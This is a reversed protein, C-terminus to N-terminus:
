SHLARRASVFTKSMRADWRCQMHPCAHSVEKGEGKGDDFSQQTVFSGWDEEKGEGGEEEGEKSMSEHAAAYTRQVDMEIVSVWGLKPSAETTASTSAAANVAKQLKKYKRTSERVLEWYNGRRTPATQALWYLKRQNPPVGNNEIISARTFTVPPAPPEPPDDSDSDSSASSLSFDSDISDASTTPASSPLEGESTFSPEAVKARGAPSALWECGAVLGAASTASIQLGRLPTALGLVASVPMSQGDIPLTPNYVPAAITFSPFPSPSSPTLLRLHLPVRACSGPQGHESAHVAIDRQHVEVPVARLQMGLGMSTLCLRVDEDHPLLPASLTMVVGPLHDALLEHGCVVLSRLPSSSGDDVSLHGSKLQELSKETERPEPQAPEEVEGPGEFEGFDDSSSADDVSLHGSKLQELSKETERPEPQVPEEVEGPGEFEGFDNSEDSSSADDVSLHGSKLQELSKETERSEPQAPEEVEGSGEFEGFGDGDSSSADDVSLHGSKLQELNKETLELQAVNEAVQTEPQAGGESKFHGFGADEESGEDSVPFPGSERQALQKEAEEFGEGDEECDEDSSNFDDISLHGSSKFPECARAEAALVPEEERRALNEKEVVLEEAKEGGENNNNSSSNDSSSSSKDVSIGGSGQLPERVAQPSSRSSGNSSSREDVEERSRAVGGRSESSGVSTLSLNGESGFQKTMFHDLEEHKVVTSRRDEGPLSFDWSELKLRNQFPTVGNRKPTGGKKRPTMTKRPTTSASKTPTKAWRKEGSYGCGVVFELPKYYHEELLQALALAVCTHVFPVWVCTHVFPAATHVTPSRSATCTVSLSARFGLL